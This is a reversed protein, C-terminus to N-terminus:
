RGGYVGNLYTVYADYDEETKGPHDMLWQEKKSFQIGYDQPNSGIEYYNDPNAKVYAMENYARNPNVTTNNRQQYNYNTPNYYDQEQKSYERILAEKKKTLEDLKNQLEAQENASQVYDMGRAFTSALGKATDSAIDAEKQIRNSQREMTKLRNNIMNDIMSQYAINDRSYISM